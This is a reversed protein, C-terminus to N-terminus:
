NKFSTKAGIATKPDYSIALTTWCCSSFLKLTAFNPGWEDSGEPDEVQLPYKIFRINRVLSYFNM